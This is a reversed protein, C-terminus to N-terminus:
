EISSDADLLGDLIERDDEALEVFEVGIDWRGETENEYKVRARSKVVQHEVSILMELIAGLGLPEDSLFSCGGAGITRTRAFEELTEDGLRKVLVTNASPIRPFRRRSSYDDSM